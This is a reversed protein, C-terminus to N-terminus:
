LHNKTPSYHSMIMFQNNSKFVCGKSAQTSEYRMLLKITFYLQISKPVYLAPQQKSIFQMFVLNRLGKKARFCGLFNELCFLFFFIFAIIILYDERMHYSITVHYTKGVFDKNHKKLKAHSLKIKKKKKKSKMDAVSFRSIAELRFNLVNIYTCGISLNKDM